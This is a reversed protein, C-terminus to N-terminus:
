GGSPTCYREKEHEETARHLDRVRASALASGRVRELLERPTEGVVLSLGHKRLCGHYHRVPAPTRRRRRLIRLWAVLGIGAVVLMATLPQEKTFALTRGPLAGIWAAARARAKEDFGTVRNWLGGAFAQLDKWLGRGAAARAGEWAPTADVTYWGASRDLVEVWAHAHRARITLVTEIDNWEESRFGTVVRCPIGESRLLVALATAFYECHGGTHGQLFAELSEAAGASGPPLYRYNDHLHRRICEVRERQSERGGAIGRVINAAGPSAQTDLLLHVRSTSDRIKRRLPQFAGAAGVDIVYKRCRRDKVSVAYCFTLDPLVLVRRWVEPLTLEIRTAELPTFLRATTPSPMEVEVRARREEGGRRWQHRDWRVWPRLAMPNRVPKWGRGNFQDLTAGRWWSPVDARTGELLKVRMVVRNDEVVVGSRGLDIRDSFGVRTLADPQRLRISRVFGRRHFDRPVFFFALFTLAVLVGSRVAGERVCRWLTAAPVDSGSRALTLLQMVVVLVPAYLLFLLCYHVDFCLFSTVVVILFSNFFLIDPKQKHTINNVLHVQCLGALFLGDELLHQVGATAVHHVLLAFVGLVAVNWALRYLLFRVLRVLIPSALTLIVLPGLWSWRSSETIFVFALNILVLGVMAARLASRM